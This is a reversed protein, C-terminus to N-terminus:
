GANNLFNGVFSLYFYYRNNLYYVCFFYYTCGFKFNPNLVNVWNTIPRM